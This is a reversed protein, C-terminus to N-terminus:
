QLLKRVIQPVQDMTIEVTEEPTIKLINVNRNRGWKFEYRAGDFCITNPLSELDPVITAGHQRYHEMYDQFFGLRRCTDGEYVIGDLVNVTFTENKIHIYYRTM